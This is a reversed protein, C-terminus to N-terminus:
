PEIAEDVAYDRTAKRGVFDWYNIPPVGDGPRKITLNIASFPEGRRIEVAAVLSRRAIPRNRLEAESPGKSTSGLAQEICRIDRVMAALEAPELSALHDPGPLTRDLTFHKEIVTAGRAVAALSVATGLTHDSYGVPLDFAARMSEMARLNADAPPAPYETVCHLLTVRRALAERGAASAYAVEFAARSPAGSGILGFAIVGLAERIEELTCMGTSLIIPRGLRAAELVLPAATVDGSPIKVAPMEFGALFHLSELDFATSMFAIGLERCRAALTHHAERSLELRRLMELQGGGEGTNETQYVAKQARVSALREAKFTQFKVADAGAAAAVAVLQLAVDLSGNHNVGAEAIVFTRDYSRIEGALHFRKKLLARPDSVAKLAAVIRPASHGDGYPNTTRSCDLVAAAALAASISDRTPECHIVSDAALRGRQRDGINVTPKHLSPAEYLGSSSNGVVADVQAMLSLYRQQGLSTYVCANPRATVWTDLMRTLARGGTDANPKTFFLGVKAGLTDLADLLAQFQRESAGPELTVPHFTVLLNRGKFTAGLERALTARDLLSLRRLNDLGPSGVVHLAASDEGMQRVRRASQENTVFHLHAMKTIAHRIAEDYAGETTDGGGIHAIPITAVLAAQAAAFIEFRDGLLVLFDPQLRELTDGFGAIGRGISRAIGKPTDSPDLMEVREAIPYGDREIEKWTLGFEPALHMGTVVLQLEIEPDTHLEDIVWRLLGYEARSGTVVCIRRKTSM